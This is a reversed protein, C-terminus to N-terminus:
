SCPWTVNKCPGAGANRTIRNGPGFVVSGVGDSWVGGTQGGAKNGTITMGTLWGSGPGSTWIAGGDEIAYNKAFLSGSLDFTYPSTAGGVENYLGGGCDATNGTVKSGGTLTFTWDSYIGGGVGGVCGSSTDGAISAALNNSITSAFIQPYEEDTYIGGGLGDYNQCSTASPYLTACSGTIAKATHKCTTTEGAITCAFTGGAVNNSISSNKSTLLYEVYVGGGQADAINHSVTSSVLDLHDYAYIGGGFNGSVNGNVSSRVLQTSDHTYLGGGYSEDGNTDYAPSGAQNGNVTSRELYLSEGHDYIGGGEGAGVCVDNVFSDCAINKDVHSKVVFISSHVTNENAIGGGYYGVNKTVTTNLLVLHPTHSDDGGLYIGGGDGWQACDHSDNNWIDCSVNATVTSNELTLASQMWIGGGANGNGHTIVVNFMQTPSDIEFVRAPSIPDAGGDVVSGRLTTKHKGKGVTKAKGVIQVINGSNATAADVELQGLNLHYTKAALTVVFITNDTQQADAELIAGRLTCTGTSKHNVVTCPMASDATSNVTLMVKTTTAAGGGSVVILGAALVAFGALFSKGKM